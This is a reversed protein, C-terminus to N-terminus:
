RGYCSVTKQPRRESPCGTAVIFLRFYDFWCQNKREWNVRNVRHRRALVCGVYPRCASLGGERLRNRVTQASICNNHTGHTNAATSTATHFRNRLYTKRIYRDSGSATVCPHGSRPRDGTHGTSQFRQRLHRFAHTPCGTNMVVANMTVGANLMGITLVRLNQPIRLM